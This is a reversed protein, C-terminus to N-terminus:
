YDPAAIGRFITEAVKPVIANGIGRNRHPGNPLGDAGGYLESPNALRARWNIRSSKLDDVAQITWDKQVATNWFGSRGYVGNPYAVIFVRPRMHPAGVSCASVTSWEADYGIRALDGCVVGMGRSLLAAVNEVVVLRPRIEGIIRGYEGWLGSRKGGIGDGPGAWSIDQCPFGGTIIDVHGVANGSLTRVDDYIPVDPWHRRLVRQCYPDIECFGITQWGVAQAALAFGGIGSFLD